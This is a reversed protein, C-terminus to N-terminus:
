KKNRKCELYDQFSGMFDDHWMSGSPNECDFGCFDSQDNAPSVIGDMLSFQHFLVSAVTDAIHWSLAARQSETLDVYALHKANIKARAEASEDVMAYTWSPAGSIGIEHASQRSYDLITGHLEIWFSKLQDETM